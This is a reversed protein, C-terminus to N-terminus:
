PGVSTEIYRVWIYGAVDHDQTNYVLATSAAMLLSTPACDVFGGTTATTKAGCLNAHLPSSAGSGVNMTSAAIGTTTEILVDKILAGKPITYTTTTAASSISRSFPVALIREASARAVEVRKPGQRTVAQARLRSGKYSGGDVLVLVDFSTVSGTAFWICSGNTTNITLPNTAATVLGPDSYITANTNTGATMVRCRGATIPEGNNGVVGLSYSVRDLDQAHAASLPVLALATLLILVAATVRSTLRM